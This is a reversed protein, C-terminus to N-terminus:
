ALDDFAGAKISGVWEALAGAAVALVREGPDSTNTVGLAGNELRRVAVCDVQTCFSSTRWPTAPAPVAEM